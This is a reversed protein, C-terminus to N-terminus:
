GRVIIMMLLGHSILSFHFIRDERKTRTTRMNRPQPNTKLQLDVTPERIEHIVARISTLKEVVFSCWHVGIIPFRRCRNPNTDM